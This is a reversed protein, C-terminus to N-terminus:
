RSLPGKKRARSFSLVNSTVQVFAGKKRARSFSLVNSTVQVFAGKERVRSFTGSPRILAMEIRGRGVAM